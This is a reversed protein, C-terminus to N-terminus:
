LRRCSPHVLALNTASSTAHRPTTDPRRTDNRCSRRSCALLRGSSCHQSAAPRLRSLQNAPMSPNKNTLAAHLLLQVRSTFVHVDVASASQHPGPAPKCSPTTLAQVAHPCSPAASTCCPPPRRFRNGNGVHSCCEAPAEWHAALTTPVARTFGDHTHIRSTFATTLECQNAIIININM